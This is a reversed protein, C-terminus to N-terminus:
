DTAAVSSLDVSLLSALWEMMALSATWDARDANAPDTPNSSELAEAM